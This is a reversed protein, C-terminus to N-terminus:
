ITDIPQDLPVMLCIGVRSPLRKCIVRLAAVSNPPEARSEGARNQAVASTAMAYRCTHTQDALSHSPNDVLKPKPWHVRAPLPVRPMKHLTFSINLLLSHTSTLTTENTTIYYFM